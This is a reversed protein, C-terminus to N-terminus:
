DFSEPIGLLCLHEIIVDVGFSKAGSTSNRSSNTCQYVSHLHCPHISIRVGDNELKILRQKLGHKLSQILM